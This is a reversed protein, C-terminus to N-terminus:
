IPISLHPLSSASRQAVPLPLSLFPNSGPCLSRPKKPTQDNGPAEFYSSVYLALAKQAGGVGWCVALGCTLKLYPSGPPVPPRQLTTLAQCMGPHFLQQSQPLHFVHQCFLCPQPALAPFPLTLRSPQTSGGKYGESREMPLHEDGWTRAPLLTPLPSYKNPALSVSAYPIPESEFAFLPLVPAM